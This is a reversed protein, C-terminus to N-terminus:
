KSMFNKSWFRPTLLGKNKGSDLLHLSTARELIQHSLLATFEDEEVNCADRAGEKDGVLLVFM